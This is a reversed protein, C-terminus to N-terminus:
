KFIKRVFKLKGDSYPAYLLPPDIWQKTKLISKKHSFADFSSKGHYRGMGSNGVGGFPLNPNVLHLIGNNICGGGFEFTEIVFKELEKNRTYLYLSLPYRNKRIIPVIENIDKYTIVPLIPGFIEDQMISSEPTIQDIITPAIFLSNKDCQGGILLTGEHLWNELIEYRKKNIIRAFNESEIPNEGFFDKIYYIMKEIFVDKISEHILLYDPCVCTQGANFFKAWTLKRASIDINADKHVIVPSKGGLELTVPTLTDAAMSLIKKGVSPSGTFFIHNFPFRQILHSGIISGPGQVVSIYNDEYTEQIIKAVLNSIHKTQDSPKLIACNGAAIAGVLPAFLLQFPYNWPGIILTVGLPESYLYSSSPHLVFSTHVRKPKMWGKLHKLTYRIEEYLIGIESTFAEFAPKHLDLYLAEMIESEYKKIVNKLKILNEKRFEYGKTKGEDFFQRKKNFSKDIKLVDM